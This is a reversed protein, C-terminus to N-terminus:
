KSGEALLVHLYQDVMTELGFMNEARLRAGRRLQAQSDLIEVAADTLGPLDPPDLRWPDGGYPAVRGASSCVLEPLAGTDFALVPLGCALAEIVSNPCAANVDASYLLHASNDLRPIDDRPVLGQWALRVATPDTSQALIQNWASQVDPSVRGVIMLEVGAPWQALGAQRIREALLQALRVATQLGIEYGGGLSGEVLLVRCRDGPLASGDQPRYQHLDVGNYIVRGPAATWGYKREWWAQSFRSQYIIRDALRSRILALLANGYEARLYHRLSVQRKQGARRVRHLWNMGNLRQVIPIGRRHARLLGTLQRTGGIVLVADYPYDDLRDCVQIGREALGASFKARFSVMGGVGSVQPVLCVRASRHNNM